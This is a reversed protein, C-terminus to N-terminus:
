CREIGSWVANIAEVGDDGRGLCMANTEDDSKRVIPGVKPSHIDINALEVWTSRMVREKRVLFDNSRVLVIHPLENRSVHVLRRNHRPLECVLRTPLNM